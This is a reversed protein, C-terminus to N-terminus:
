AKYEKCENNMSMLEKKQLARSVSWLVDKMHSQTKFERDNRSIEDQILKWIEDVMSKFAPMDKHYNTWFQEVKEPNEALLKELTKYSKQKHSGNTLNRKVFEFSILRTVENTKDEISLEVKKDEEKNIESIAEMLAKNKESPSLNKKPTVKSDSSTKIENILELLSGESHQPTDETSLLQPSWDPSGDLITKNTTTPSQPIRPKPTVPDEKQENTKTPTKSPAPTDIPSDLSGSWTSEEPPQEAMWIRFQRHFEKKDGPKNWDPLEYHIFYYNECFCRFLYRNYESEVVRNYAAYRKNYKWFDKCSIVFEEQGDEDYTVIEDNAEDYWFIDM